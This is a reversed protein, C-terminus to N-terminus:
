QDEPSSFAPNAIPMYKPGIFLSEPDIPVLEPEAIGVCAYWNLASRMPEPSCHALKRIPLYSREILWSAIIGRSDLWCAPGFSAFYLLVVVLGATAWFAVGPKKRDSTM